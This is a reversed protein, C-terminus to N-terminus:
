QNKTNLWPRKRMKPDNKSSRRTRIAVCAVSAVSAADSSYQSGFGPGNRVMQIATQTKQTASMEMQTTMVYETTTTPTRSPHLPHTRDTAASVVAVTAVVAVGAAGVVEVAVCSERHEQRCEKMM